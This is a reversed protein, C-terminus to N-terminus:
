QAGDMGIVILSYHRLLLLVKIVPRLFLPFARKADVATAAMGWLHCVGVQTRAVASDEWEM